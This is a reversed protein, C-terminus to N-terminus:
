RRQGATKGVVPCGMTRLPSSPRSSAMARQPMGDGAKASLPLFVSGPTVFTRLMLDGCQRRHSPTCLRQTTGNVLKESFSCSGFPERGDTQNASSSLRGTANKAPM